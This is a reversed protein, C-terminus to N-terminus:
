ERKLLNCIYIGIRSITRVPASIVGAEVLCQLIGENESYDKIIVQEDTVMAQPINVTAKAVPEHTLEDRLTIATRNNGVYQGFQLYCNWEKFKVHIM